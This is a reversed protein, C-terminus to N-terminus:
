QVTLRYTTSSGTRLALHLTYLGPPLQAVSVTLEGAASLLLPQELVLQGMANYLRLPTTAAVPRLAAPVQVVFQDHAPNPYITVTPEEAQAAATALVTGENLRVDLYTTASSSQTAMFDLDGDGDLDGLALLAPDAHIAVSQTGSFSGQGNNLRVAVSSSNRSISFLDLDGDHDTDGFLTPGTNPGVAVPLGTRAFSGSGNNVFLALWGASSADNYSLALDVDGDADIDALALAEAAGPVALTAGVAFTGSGNNLFLQAGNANNTLADLDGDNDVDGLVVNVPALAALTLPQLAFTGSGNNLAVRVLNAQHETIVLDLDGDADLDGLAFYDGTASQVVGTAFTANGSNRYLRIGASFSSVLADLDGDGDVDGLALYTSAGVNSPSLSGSAQFQGRGSNLLVGISIGSPTATLVDLDGDNDLDGMAMVAASSGILRDASTWTLGQGTGGVAATFQYVQPRVAGGTATLMTGPLSVSLQEGPAFAPSPTFSLTATGAGALTGPRQGRLQNGFVRLNSATAATIASSFNFQVPATRAVAVANPGPVLSIPTTQPVVTFATASAAAAVPTTVTIAGTTAGAPVQATLQTASNVVFGTAPTGNFSVSTTGLFGSGTLVVTTGIPGAAPSFSALVPAPAAGNLRVSYTADFSNGHLLDLDGDNDVDGLVPGGASAGMSVDLLKTFSGQGSNLWIETPITGPGMLLIDLDNDADLDGVALVHGDPRTTFSTPTFSGQGNNLGLLMTSPGGGYNPPCIAWVDLDGDNDVDGLATSSSGTPTPLLASQVTLNGLGDNLQFLVAYGNSIAVDFDGDADLDGLMLRGLNTNPSASFFADTTGGFIGAGDNFRVSTTCTAGNINSTVLDLFGDANMDALALSNPRGGVNVEQQGSFVGAGNNLRISVKSSDRSVAMDLDGDGDFDGLVVQSVPTHPIALTSSPSGFTGAGNNLRVEVTLEHRILLDQSGDGNVDGLTFAQSASSQTSTTPAALYGRGSGGVAARFQYAQRLVQRQGGDTFPPLSVSLLEGPVYPQTPALTLTSTGVGQRAGALLGGRQQSFVALNAATNTPIPQSFTAAVPTTRPVTANRAPSTSAVAVPQLVTFSAASASTGQPNTVSIPGTTAGAPVSATLQTDSNIVFGPAATGNFAVGTTTIFDTGTLVVTTGVLGSTPSFSAVTPAAVRYNLRVRVTSANANSALLDLDGDGDLDALVMSNYIDTLDSGLGPSFQGQGNNLSITLTGTNVLLDLDGDADIDGLTLSQGVTSTQTGSFVGSGNNFRVLGNNTVLDLDGDGDLDGLVVSVTTNGVGNASSLRSARSFRGTGNNLYVNLYSNNSGFGQSATVLDLDGDNDVDGTAVGMPRADVPLRQRSPFRGTGDNFSITLTDATARVFAVDPDGDGDLDGVALERTDFPSPNAFKPLATFLGSGGNLFAEGSTALLDLKGDANLDALALAFPTGNLWLNTTQTAFTGNGNNLRLNSNTNIFDLDGDNDIDGVVQNGGYTSVPVDATGNRLFLGKGTGGAAARFQHVHPAAATGSATGRLAAPLSVTVLEGPAFPQAPTFTLTSTGGGAVIGARKGQLQASHVQLNAASAASIPQAFTAAVTIPRPVAKANRAPSVSLVPIPVVVDFPTASTATGAPTTVTVPGTTAGVPVTAVVEHAATVVFSPAAVGNFTVAQTGVLNTGTLVVRSGVPGSRPSLVTLTPAPYPQNLRVTVVDNEQATLLDIDGDGDLDGVAIGEPYNSYTNTPLIALFGGAGDNLSIGSHTLVDLDGDADVDALLPGAGYQILEGVGAFTGTGNNLRIALRTGCNVVLDLDSDADLDGLALTTPNSLTTITQAENFSGTGTNLQVSVIYPGFNGVSGTAVLDLDGDADVDGLTLWLPTYNGTFPALATAYSGSFIGAGNNLRVIITRNSVTVVDLDGDADVDGLLLPSDAGSVSNSSGNSFTGAGNNLWIRLTAYDTAVLDLDGDADVDGLTLGLVPFSSITLAPASSLNGAGDNLSLSVTGDARGPVVLDLDGDNDLDGLTPQGDQPVTLTTPTAFNAQGTGGAAATFQVVQKSVQNGDAAQLSAPLVLSVQEGPAFAQTPAFTLATTGGGSLTGPRRGRRHSGFVRLGGATAATVPVSFTTTIGGTRSGNIANRAPTSGTLLVPVPVTITFPGPSTATGAEDTVVTVAGSTAGAPVTVTLVTGQGNLVFGPAALGNFFVGAVDTLNTGAVVVSAGVPGAAPMLSTITPAPLPPPTNLNLSLMVQGQPDSTILDLDLDGDVDGLTVGVSTTPAAANRSLRLPRVQVAFTGATNLYTFVRGGTGQAVVLDLDGDADLDGTRLSTPASGAPLALTTTGSFTGSGNNLRVSLSASGANATLLDLDGDGDIDTLQLETPQLGVAVTTYAGFTGTGSNRSIHVEGTPNSATGGNSTVLDLDGDNDIDALVIATPGAGMAVTTSSTYLYPSSATNFWVTATSSGANATAFDMDGDGDLDGAAVGVPRTGVAANQAGTVSGIFNGAGDNRCVAVLANDADGVLMDLDGDNDVDTLAVGSPTQATVVGTKFTYHGAGDNLFIRCGYLSGTTVLDLDGDGDVDGLVQDRNGTNGVITTDVFFGRGSGGTAATFQYVQRTTATGSTSALTPPVSVGVLEGPAFSLSPAFTLTSTGGGAVSGARRGQRLSGYVRLNPATASSIAQSFGITVAASRAASVAHRGPQRSTVIVQSRASLSLLLGAVVLPARWRWGLLANAAAALLIAFTFPQQLRTEVLFHFFGFLAFHLYNSAAFLRIFCKNRLM